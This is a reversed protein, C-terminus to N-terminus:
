TYIIAYPISVDDGGVTVISIFPVGTVVCDINDCPLQPAISSNETDGDFLILANVHQENSLVPVPVEVNFAPLAHVHVQIDDHELQSFKTFGAHPRTNRSGM